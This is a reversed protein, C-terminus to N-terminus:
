IRNMIYFYAPYLVLVQSFIVAGLLLKGTVTHWDFLYGNRQVILATAGIAAVQLYCLWWLVSMQVPLFRVKGDGKQKLLFCGIEYMCWLRTCYRPSWLVLLTDSRELFSALGSICESKVADDHQPICLSDLFVLTRQKCVDKLHQWFFLVLLSVLHCLLTWWATKPLIDWGCLVGIVISFIFTVLASAWSNFFILLSFYKMWGSTGWDHSLFYDFRQTVQTLHPRWKGFTAHSQRWEQGAGQIAVRLKVARLLEPPLDLTRPRGDWRTCLLM